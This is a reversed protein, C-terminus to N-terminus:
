DDCPGFFGATEIDSVIGKGPILAMSFAYGDRIFCLAAEESYGGELLWRLMEEKTEFIPSIPIGETVNEYIQYCTAEEQTWAPRYYNPDPPGGAWEWYPCKSNINELDPHTGNEWALYGEVWEKIASAADQDYLPRYYGRYDKPHEWDKPVRRIERGM